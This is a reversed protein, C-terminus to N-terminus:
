NNDAAPTKSKRDKFIKLLEHSNNPAFKSLGAGNDLGMYFAEVLDKETYEFDEEVEGPLIINDVFDFLEKTYILDSDDFLGNDSCYNRYKLIYEEKKKFLFVKEEGYLEAACDQLADVLHLLGNALEALEGTDRTLMEKQFMLQQYDISDFFEKPTM